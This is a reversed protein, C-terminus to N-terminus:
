GLDYTGSKTDDMFAAWAEPTFKLHPGGPNKSDGVPVFGLQKVNKASEVCQQADDSYSSKFWEIHHQPVSM